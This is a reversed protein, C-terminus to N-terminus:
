DNRFLLPLSHRLGSVSYLSEVEGRCNYWCRSCDNAKWRQRLRALITGMPTRLISGVPRQRDEVCKAVMGREDINFTSRGARCGGIGSEIARDFRSLFYPNSLFNPYKRQLAVLRESIPAEARHCREGTKLEGYPQVMFHVQLSQALQLLPEIEDANDRTLVCMVNVRQHPETRTDRFVTIASVAEDWAGRAGRASDHEGANAYDLSVSVGWCGADWIERAVNPKVGWGNTTFVPFHRGALARIIDPLDSRLLPEGGALNIILSGAQSLREAGSAFDAVTLEEDKRAPLRWYPCIRCRFNCRYTVQWSCWVPHGAAYARVLRRKKERNSRVEVHSM